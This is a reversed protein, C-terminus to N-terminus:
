RSRGAAIARAPLGRLVDVYAVLSVIDGFRQDHFGDYNGGEAEVGWAEIGSHSALFLARALHDRQSVILLRRKGFVYRARGISDWTRNGHRDLEIVGAPVGRAVLGDRMISAEDYDDGIRIGSVIFCDTHGGHWLAAATDLRWSLTRQKQGRLGYPATGLVLTTEVKPLREPADVIYARGWADTASRAVAALAVLSVLLAAVSAVGAALARLLRM